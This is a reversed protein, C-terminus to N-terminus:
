MPFAALKDAESPRRRRRPPTPPPTPPLMRSLRLEENERRKDPVPLNVPELRDVDNSCPPRRLPPDERPFLAEVAALLLLLATGREVGMTSAHALIPRLINNINDPASTADM